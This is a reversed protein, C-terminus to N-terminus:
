SAMPCRGRNNSSCYRVAGQDQETNPSLKNEDKTQSREGGGGVGAEKDTSKAPPTATTSYSEVSTEPYKYGTM